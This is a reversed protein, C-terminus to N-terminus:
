LNRVLLTVPRAKPVKTTHAIQMRGLYAALLSMTVLFVTGLLLGLGGDLRTLWMAVVGGTAAFAYLLMAVQPESLGLAVLRYTSHDLGGESIPRGALLRTITVLTTDVLPVAVIALPVFLVSVVSASGAGPSSVVLGALVSGLFLSGADGMFISAPHFNYRLFGITAGAISWAISAHWWAGQRAFTLGLF